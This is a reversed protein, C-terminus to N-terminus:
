PRAVRQLTEQCSRSEVDRVNLYGFGIFRFPLVGDEHRPPRHEGDRTADRDLPEEEALSAHVPALHPPADRAPIVEPLAALPTRLAPLPHQRRPRCRLRLGRFRMSRGSSIPVIHPMLWGEREM